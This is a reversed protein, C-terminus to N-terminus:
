GVSKRREGEDSNGDEGISNERNVKRSRVMARDDEERRGIQQSSIVELLVRELHHACECNCDVM